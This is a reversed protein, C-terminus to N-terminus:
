CSEDFRCPTKHSAPPAIAFPPQWLHYSRFDKGPFAQTIPVSEGVRVDKDGPRPLICKVDGLSDPIRASNM